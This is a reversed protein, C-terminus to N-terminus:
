PTRGGAVPDLLYRAALEEGGDAHLRVVSSAPLGVLSVSDAGELAVVAERWRRWMAAYGDPACLAVVARDADGREVMAGALAAIRM